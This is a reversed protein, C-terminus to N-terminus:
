DMVLLLQPSLAWGDIMLIERKCTQVNLQSSVRHISLSRADASILHGERGTLSLQLPIEVDSLTAVSRSAGLTANILPIWYTQENNEWNLDLSPTAKVRIHLISSENSIM